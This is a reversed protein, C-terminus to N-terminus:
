NHCEAYVDSPMPMANRELSDPRQKTNQQIDNHQTSNHLTMISLAMMSFATHQTGNDETDHRWKQLRALFKPIIIQGYSNVGM